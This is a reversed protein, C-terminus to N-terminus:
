TRCTYLTPWFAGPKPRESLPKNLCARVAPLRTRASVEMLVPLTDTLEAATSSPCSFSGVCTHSSALTHMMPAPLIDVRSTLCKSLLPQLSTVMRLRLRGRASASASSKGSMFNLMLSMGSKISHTSSLSTIKAAEPESSSSIKFDSTSFMDCRLSLTPPARRKMSMETGRLTAGSKFVSPPRAITYLTSSRLSTTAPLLSARACAASSASTRILSSCRLKSDHRSENSVTGVMLAKLAFASDTRADSHSFATPLSPSPNLLFCNFATSSSLLDITLLNSCPGMVANRQSPVSGSCTSCVNSLMAAKSRM